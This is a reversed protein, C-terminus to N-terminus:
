FVQFGSGVQPSPPPPPPPPPPPSPKPVCQFGKFVELLRSFGFWPCRPRSLPLSGFSTSHSPRHPHVFRPPPPPKHPRHPRRPRHPRLLKPVCQFGKFAEFLRSFGFWDLAALDPCHCLGSRRLTAPATPTSLATSATPATPPSPTQAFGKYKCFFWPCSPPSLPLSRVQPPPSPPPPPPPSPPKPVSFVLHSFGFWLCGPRSLPLSGFSTSHSPRHPHVFRHPATPPSPTQACM